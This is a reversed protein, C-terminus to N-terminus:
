RCHTPAKGRPLLGTESVVPASHSALCSPSTQNRAAESPVAATSRWQLTGWPLVSNTGMAPVTSREPLLSGSQAANSRM